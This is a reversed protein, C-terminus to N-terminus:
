APGAQGDSQEAVIELSEWLALLGEPLIAAGEPTRALDRILRGIEKLKTRDEALAGVMQEFLPYGEYSTSGQRRSTNEEGQQFAGLIAEHQGELLLWLLRRVQDKDSLISALLRGLRDPPAGMLPLNFAFRSAGALGNVSTAVECVVFGNLAAIPLQLFDALKGKRDTVEVGLEARLYAPWCKM